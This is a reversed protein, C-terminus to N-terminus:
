NPKATIGSLGSKVQEFGELINGDSMQMLGETIESFASTIADKYNGVNRQNDGVTADLEVFQDNLERAQESVEAFRAALAEYEPSNKQGARELVLMEAGLNKAEQKLSNLERNLEKYAGENGQIETRGASMLNNLETQEQRMGRLEQQTRTVELAYNAQVRILNQQEEISEDILRNSNEMVRNYQEQTITGNELQQNLKEQAEYEEEIKKELDKIADSSQKIIKNADRMVGSLRQMELYNAAIQNSLKNDDWTFTGLEINRNM